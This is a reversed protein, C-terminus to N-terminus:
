SPTLPLVINRSARRLAMGQLLYSADWQDIASHDHCDIPELGLGGRRRLIIVFIPTSVAFLLVLQYRTIKWRGSAFPIRMAALPVLHFDGIMALGEGPGVLLTLTVLSLLQDEGVEL